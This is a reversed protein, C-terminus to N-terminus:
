IGCEPVDAWDGAPPAIALVERGAKRWREAATAAAREGPEGADAAITLAEIGGLVPFSALFGAGGCAWVPALGTMLLAIGTEVGECIVLGAIPEDFASLLVVAGKAHGTVTKGKGDRLRDSGDPLLYINIIGVQQGTHLDLLAALMAPHYELQGAPSKRARRAAFRLVRGEPDAFRLGRATLYTEALTGAIPRAAQWPSCWRLPDPVPEAKPAAPERPQFRKGSTGLLMKVAEVYSVNDARMVFGIADGHVGCGFCHFFAKGEIVYFSPTKERHFPCLGVYERGARALKILRGVLDALSV